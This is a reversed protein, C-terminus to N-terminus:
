DGKRNRGNGLRRAIKGDSLGDILEQMIHPLALKVQLARDEKALAEFGDQPSEPIFPQEEALKEQVSQGNRGNGLKSEIMEHLEDIQRQLDDLKVQMPQDEGPLPGLSSLPSGLQKQEQLSQRNRGNGCESQIKEGLENMQKQLDDLKVQLSQNEEPLPGMSDLPSEPEMPVEDLKGQSSRDEDALPDFPSDPIMPQTQVEDLKEQLSQDDKALPEYSETPSELKKSKRM